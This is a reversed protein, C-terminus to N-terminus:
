KIFIIFISIYIKYSFVFYKKLNDKKNKIVRKDIFIIKFMDNIMNIMVKKNKVNM